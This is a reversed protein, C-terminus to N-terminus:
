SSVGRSPPPPIRLGPVLSRVTTQGSIVHEAVAHLAVDNARAYARLREFATEMDVAAGEAIMGKAQEIVVRSNLAGELTSERAAADRVAQDQIIAITAVDALARALGVDTAALQTPATMFLNLCGLTVDRLRLPIVCVSPFGATLSERAFEPWPTSAALQGCTVMEGTTYCDLCPGHENQVQFLELLEVQVSSAAIVNLTGSRRDALLFGAASVDLLEVSRISLNTLVDVVDFESVLANAIEVFAISVLALRDVAGHGMSDGIM